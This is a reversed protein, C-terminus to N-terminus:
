QGPAFIEDARVFAELLPAMIQMQSHHERIAALKRDRAREDLPLAQWSRGAAPAPPLLPLQPHLGYPRPWHRAHVIWYRLLPLQGRQELLRRVFEGSAAHDPHLDEPAAALVMTPRYRELVQELDHELSEGTFPADPSLAGAYRVHTGATYSSRYPRRYFGGLLARLGRDPYGLVFQLNHPVGLLDAAAHAERLRQRGLRLMTGSDPALAHEVLLADLEFADGATVWVVAVSAGAAAARQILGACCLSEDDPHPSVILLREGAAPARMLPLAPAVPPADAARAAPLGGLVSLLLVWRPLRRRRV